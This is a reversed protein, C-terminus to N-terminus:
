RRAESLHDLGGEEDIACRHRMDIARDGADQPRVDTRAERADRERRLHLRADDGRIRVLLAQPREKVEPVREPVRVLGCASIPDRVALRDRDAEHERAGQGFGEAERLDREALPHLSEERFGPQGYARADRLLRPREDPTILLHAGPLDAPYQR